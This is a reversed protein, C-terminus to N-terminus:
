GSASNAKKIAKMDPVRVYHRYAASTNHSTEKVHDASVETDVEIKFTSLKDLVSIIIANFNRGEYADLLM